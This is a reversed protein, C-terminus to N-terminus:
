EIKIVSNTPQCRMYLCDLLLIRAPGPLDLGLRAAGLDPHPRDLGVGLAQIATGVHGQFKCMTSQNWHQLSWRTYVLFRLSDIRSTKAAEGNQRALRHCTEKQRGFLPRRGALCGGVITSLTRRSDIKTSEFSKNSSTTMILRDPVGQKSLRHMDSEGFPTQVTASSSERGSSSSQLAERAELGFQGDWGKRVRNMPWPWMQTAARQKRAHNEKPVSKERQKLRAIPEEEEEEKKKKREHICTSGPRIQRASLFTISGAAMPLPLYVHYPARQWPCRATSRFAQVGTGSCFTHTVDRLLHSCHM